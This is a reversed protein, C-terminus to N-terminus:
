PSPLTFLYPATKDIVDQVPKRPRGDLHIMVATVLAEAIIEEGRFCTQQFVVRVGKTGVYRSRIRLLDDVKAARKYDVEVKILTFAAPDPRDLLSQHSVGVDRLFDSRGREFFRLYNAHYVMGTFDTDEYYVRIDLWHQGQDDFPPSFQSM